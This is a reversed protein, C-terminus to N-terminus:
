QPCSFSKGELRCRRVVGRDIDHLAATWAAGANWCCFPLGQRVGAGGGGHRRHRIRAATGARRRDGHRRRRRDGAVAPRRRLPLRRLPPYPRSSSRSPDPGSGGGRGAPHRQDGAPRLEPGDFRFVAYLPHHALLWAGADGAATGGRHAPPLPRDAAAAAVPRPRARHRARGHRARGHRPPLARHVGRLRGPAGATGPLPVLWPRGAPLGRPQRPGHGLPPQWCRHPRTSLRGATDWGYGYAEGCGASPQPCPSRRYHYDGVHIVLDARARGGGRRHPRVAMGPITAPRAVGGRIRCTDGLVVVRQAEARPVPVDRRPSTVRQV